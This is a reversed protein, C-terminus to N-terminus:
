QGKSQETHGSHVTGPLCIWRECCHSILRPASHRAGCETDLYTVECCHLCSCCSRHCCDPSQTFVVIIHITVSQSFFILWLSLSFRAVVVAVVVDVAVSTIIMDKGVSVGAMAEVDRWSLPEEGIARLCLLPLEQTGLLM